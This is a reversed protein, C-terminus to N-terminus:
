GFIMKDNAINIKRVRLVVVLTKLIQFVIFRNGRSLKASASFTM